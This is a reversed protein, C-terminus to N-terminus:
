GIRRASVVYRSNDYEYTCTSLTLVSDTAKITVSEDVHSNKSKKAYDIMANMVDAFNQDSGFDTHYYYAEGKQWIYAAYVEWKTVKDNWQFEIIRNNDFFSRQKYNNLDHFMTGNKMNHGYVILHKQQDKDANRFDMFIAGHKSSTKEVTHTLYYENNSGRVLPYDIATNDIKIWGIVDKNDAKYEEYTRSPPLVDDPAAIGDIEEISIAPKPTASAAPTESPAAPDPSVAPAVAPTPTPLDSVVANPVQSIPVNQVYGPHMIEGTDIKRGCGICLVLAICLAFVGIQKHLRM